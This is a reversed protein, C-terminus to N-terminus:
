TPDLVIDHSPLSRILATLNIHLDDLAESLEEALFQFSCWRVQAPLPTLAECGVYVVRFM